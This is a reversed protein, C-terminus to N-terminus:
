ILHIERDRLVPTSWNTPSPLEETPVGRGIGILREELLLTNRRLGDVEAEKLSFWTTGTKPKATGLIKVCVVMSYQGPEWCFQNRYYGVLDTLPKGRIFAERDAPNSKDRRNLDDDAAATLERSERQFVPDQFRFFKETPLVTNVRIATAVQDREFKGGEGGPAKLESFTEVFSHWTLNIARGKEHRINLRMEVITADKRETIISARMNVMPGFINYGVEIESVPILALKPRVVLRYVATGIQPLWAAAGIVAAWELADM